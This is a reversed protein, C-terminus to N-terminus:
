QRPNKSSPLFVFFFAALTLQRRKLYFGPRTRSEWV